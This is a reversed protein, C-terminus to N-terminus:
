SNGENSTAKGGHHRADEAQVTGVSAGTGIRAKTGKKM